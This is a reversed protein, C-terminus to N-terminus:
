KEPDACRAALCADLEDRSMAEIEAVAAADDVRQQPSKVRERLQHARMATPGGQYIFFQDCLESSWNDIPMPFMREYEAELAALEAADATPLLGRAHELRDVRGNLRERSM